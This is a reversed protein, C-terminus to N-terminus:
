SAAVNDFLVALGGGGTPRPPGQVVEGPHAGAPAHLWARLAGWGQEVLLQARQEAARQEVEPVHARLKCQESYLPWLIGDGQPEEASRKRPSRRGSRPNAM